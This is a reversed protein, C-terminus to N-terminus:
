EDQKYLDCTSYSEKMFYCTMTFHNKKRMCSCGEFEEYDYDTEAKTRGEKLKNSRVSGQFITYECNDTMKGDVFIKATVGTFVAVIERGFHKGKWKGQLYERDADDYLQVNSGATNFDFGNKLADEHFADYIEDAAPSGVTPMQNSNMSLTEGSKYEASIYDGCGGPLGDVTCHYGNGRALEHSKIINNLKELLFKTCSRYRVCFKTGDRRSSNGGSARVYLEGDTLECFCSIKRDAYSFKILEDSQITKPADKDWSEHKAGCCADMNVTCMMGMGMFGPMGNGSGGGFQDNGM